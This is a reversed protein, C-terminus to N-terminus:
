EDGASKDDRTKVTGDKFSDEMASILIDAADRVLPPWDDSFPSWHVSSLSAPGGMGDDYFRINIYHVQRKGM